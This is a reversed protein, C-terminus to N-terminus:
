PISHMGSHYGAHSFDHLFRGQGDAYGPQWTEPYLSSRWPAAACLGGALLFFVVVTAMRRSM